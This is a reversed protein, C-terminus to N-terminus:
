TGNRGPRVACSLGATEREMHRDKLSYDPWVQASCHKSHTTISYTNGLQKHTHSQDSIKFHSTLCVPVTPNVKLNLWSLHIKPCRVICVVVVSSERHTKTQYCPSVNVSILAVHLWVEWKTWRTSPRPNNTNNNINLAIWVGTKLSVINPSCAKPQFFVQHLYIFAYTAFYKSTHKWPWRFHKFLSKLDDLGNSKSEMLSQISFMFASSPNKLM